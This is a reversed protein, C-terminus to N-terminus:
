AGLPLPHAPGTAHRFAAPDLDYKQLLKYFPGRHIGALVAARSVTGQTTALVHALYAHECTARVHELTELVTYPATCGCPSAGGTM